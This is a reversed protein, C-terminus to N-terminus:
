RLVFVDGSGFDVSIVEVDAVVNNDNLFDRLVDSLVVTNNSLIPSANLVNEVLAIDNQNLVDNLCVVSLNANNLAENLAAIDGQVLSINGVAAAILGAIVAQRNENSRPGGQSVGGGGGGGGGQTQTCGSNGTNDGTSQASVPAVALSSILLSMAAITRFKKM